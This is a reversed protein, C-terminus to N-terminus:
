DSEIAQMQLQVEASPSEIKNLVIKRKLFLELEPKEEIKWNLGSLHKEDDPFEKIPYIKGEPEAYFRISKVKSSDFGIQMRKCAVKNVGTYEATDTENNRLYYISEANGQVDVLKLANSDFYNILKKGSIQNFHDEKVESALFADQTVILSHISKNRIYIDMTDGTIQNKQNWLIPAQLLHIVSDQFDYILSDCHGQFEKQLISTNKFARLVKNLSDNKFYMTDAMLYMTDQKDVKVSLPNGSIVSIKSKQYYKGYQGYLDIHETSDYLWINGIGIGIGEIKDYLLSDASIFSSDSYITARKSFQARETKTNYWGYNCIIKNESSVIRTPGYFFATKTNAFYDLTDSKMTYDPTTLEVNEKFHFVNGRRNYFGKVSKLTNNESLIDAGNSYYGVQSNTNYQISTTILTMKEDKLIVEDGTVTATKTNEDYVLYDGGTLTFTDPQYIYINGFGEIIGESTKRIASDCQIFVGGHKIVVNNVIYLQQKVQDFNMKEGGIIEVKSQGHSYSCFLMFGLLVLIRSAM